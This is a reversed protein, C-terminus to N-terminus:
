RSALCTDARSSCTKQGSNKIRAAAEEADKLSKIEMGALKSAEAINPMVVLALPLLEGILADEADKKLLRKGSSSIMVPDVVLNTLRYRRVAEAVALIVGASYLM